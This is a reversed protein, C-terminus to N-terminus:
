WRAEGYIEITPLVKVEKPKIVLTWAQQMFKLAEDKSWFKRFLAGEDDYIWYRM